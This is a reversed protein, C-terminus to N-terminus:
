GTPRADGTAKEEKLTEQPLDAAEKQGFQEAWAILKGFRALGVQFSSLKGPFKLESSIEAARNPSHLGRITRKGSKGTPRDPLAVPEINATRKLFSEFM